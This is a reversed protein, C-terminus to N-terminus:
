YITLQGKTFLVNEPAATRAAAGTAGETATIRVFSNGIVEYDSINKDSLAESAVKDGTISGNAINNAGVAGAALDVSGVQGDGIDATKGAGNKSKASTVANAKLQKPGIKSAAFATGGIAVTLAIFAIVLSASPRRKRSEM